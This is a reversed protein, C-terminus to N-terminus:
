LIKRNVTNILEEKNYPKYIIDVNTEKLVEKLEGELAVMGSQFVIPIDKIEPIQKFKQYLDYGKIDPLMIDVLILGINDQYERALRMADKGNYAGVVLYNTSNQIILNALEHCVKEDDIFLIMNRTVVKNMPIVFSFTAGKDLNNEAWIRGRHAEIIEKCITLGLGTGIVNKDTLSSQIFPEFITRLEKVPIGVGSDVIDVQWFDSSTKLRCNIIGAKTYKIANTLLNLLVQQLKVSDGDTLTTNLDSKIFKIQVDQNNYLYLNRCQEIAEEILNSIDIRRFNISMKKADFKSLDLLSDTLDRLLNSSTKITHLHSKLSVNDFKEINEELFESIGHIGHIPSRIDHVINNIFKNRNKFETELIAIKENLLHTSETLSEVSYTVMRKQYKILYIIFVSSYIAIIIDNDIKMNSQFKLIFYSIEYGIIKIIIFEIPNALAAILATSWIYYSLYNVYDTLPIYHNFIPGLIILSVYLFIKFNIINKNLSGCFLLSISTIIAIFNIAHLHGQMLYNIQFILSIISSCM